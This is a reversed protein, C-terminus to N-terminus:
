GKTGAEKDMNDRMRFVVAVLELMVRSWFLMLAAVVLAVFLGIVGIRSTFMFGYVISFVVYLGILVLTIIYLMQISKPAIFDQFSFDFLRSWFGRERPYGYQGQAAYPPLAGPPVPGPPVGVPPPTYPHAAAYAAAAGAAAVPMRTGCKECFDGAAQSNGCNACTRVVDAV